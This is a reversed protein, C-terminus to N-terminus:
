GETEIKEDRNAKKRRTEVPNHVLMYRSRAEGDGGVIETIRLNERVERYRGRGKM